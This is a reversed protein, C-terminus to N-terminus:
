VVEVNKKLTLFVKRKRLSEQTKKKTQKSRYKGWLPDQTCEKCNDHTSYAM